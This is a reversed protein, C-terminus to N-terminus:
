LIVPGTEVMSGFRGRRKGRHKNELYQEVQRAIIHIKDKLLKHASKRYRDLGFGPLYYGAAFLNLLVLQFCRPQMERDTATGKVNEQPLIELRKLLQGTTSVGEPQDPEWSTKGCCFRLIPPKDLKQVSTDTNPTGPSLESFGLKHFWDIDTPFDYHYVPASYSLGFHCYFKQIESVIEVMQENFNTSNVNAGDALTDIGNEICYILARTHMALRCFLCSALNFLGYRYLNRWYEVYTVYKYLPDIEFTEHSFSTEPFKERLLPVNRASNEIRSHGSHRFTILRITSFSKASLAAVATSDTGGSYLIAIENM